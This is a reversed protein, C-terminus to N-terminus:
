FFMFLKLRIGLRNKAPAWYTVIDSHNNQILFSSFKRVASNTIIVEVLTLQRPSLLLRATLMLGERRGTKNNITIM